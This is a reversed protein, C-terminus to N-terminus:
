KWYSNQSLRSNANLVEKAIPWYIGKQAILANFVPNNNKIKHYRVQDYWRWGEGMLERRREDFIEKILDSGPVDAFGSVGRNKKVTNLLIIADQRQGIVALAEARLLALEELRTFLISSSYIAFDGNTSGGRLVKIKSFVPTEGSYNVFYNTRSLGSITDLGFRQDNLDTFVSTITDKSVYLDPTQKTILPAALVLQEIHGNATSEGYIDNFGFGIVQKFSQGNFLGDASTLETTTSYDVGAKAYNKMIFDTYVAADIYHSQWASIHALVAYASIKTFLAGRWREFTYGYYPGPLEENGDAGYVYPLDKVAAMLESEAYALVKSQDTTPKMEFSGDHSSTILPVDGWIRVMYFYIFARLARAQAVDVKNNTETYRIDAKVVEPSREIFLSANNIVAYFSRWNMINQLLPYSANLEGKVIAKLDTKKTANFDGNRFEGWLWHANNNALAARTLGYTAMLGARTDQISKWHESEKALRTSEVDLVKKCSVSLGMVAATLLIGLVKNVQINRNVFSIM